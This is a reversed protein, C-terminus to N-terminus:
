PVSVNSQALRRGDAAHVEFTAGSWAYVTMGGESVSVELAGELPSRATVDLSAGPPMVLHDGWPEVYVDLPYPRDNRLTVRHARQHVDM